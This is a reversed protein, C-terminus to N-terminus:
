GLLQFVRKLEGLVREFINDLLELLATDNSQIGLAKKLDIEPPRKFNARTFAVKAELAYEFEKGVFRRQAEHLYWDDAVKGVIVPYEKWFWYDSWMPHGSFSQPMEKEPSPIPGFDKPKPFDKPLVMIPPLNDAYNRTPERFQQTQAPPGSPAAGWGGGGSRM